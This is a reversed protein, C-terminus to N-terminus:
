PLDGINIGKIYSFIQERQSIWEWVKMGVSSVVRAKPFQYKIIERIREKLSHIHTLGHLM